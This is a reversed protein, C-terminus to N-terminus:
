IEKGELSFKMFLDQFNFAMTGLSQLWKVGLIVDAGGMPIVTMPSNMVYEGWILISKIENEQAISLEEM